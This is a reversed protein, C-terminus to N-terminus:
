SRRSPDTSPCRRTCYRDKHSAVASHGNRPRPPRITRPMPLSPKASRPKTLGRQAPRPSAHICEADNSTPARGSMAQCAGNRNPRTRIPRAHICEADYINRGPCTHVPAAHYPLGLYPSYQHPMAHIYRADNSTTALRPLTHCPWVPSHAALDPLSECDM